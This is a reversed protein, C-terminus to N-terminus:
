NLKLYTKMLKDRRKTFMKELSKQKASKKGQLYELAISYAMLEDPNWEEEKDFMALVDEKSYPTSQILREIENKLQLINM